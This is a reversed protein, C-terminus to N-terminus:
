GVRLWVPNTFCFHTRGDPATTFCEARLYGNREVTIVAASEAGTLGRFSGTPIEREAAAGVEGHLLRITEFGGFETSSRAELRVSVRSGVVESGISTEPDADGSVRLNLVPGDTLISKGSRLGHLIAAEDSGASFVGTRMLGFLQDHHEWMRVFPIRIQRFRNFNGHADDGAISVLRRGELLLRIWWTYGEDFAADRRGNAFQFGHLGPARLDDVEWIGRGMLLRQLLSVRERAHAAVAAAQPELGCLVETISHESRTRLWREASDGSGPVFGRIGYLLVHVNQGRANRCTVEEGRVIAPGDGRANLRDVEVQFQKWKPLDPHNRLFDDAHDDLDYSHDTICFYSLGAAQALVRAADLPVGFEVQDSTYSSHAHPEGLHLNPLVPLPEEAVLVTLPAHSTTRHNDNRYITRRGAAELEFEVDCDITGRFGEVSIPVVRWQLPGECSWPEALLELTRRMGGRLSLTATVRLLRSPYRDADKVLILVPLSAGPEIRFPADIVVEPEPKRLFSPLARFRYHTEAYLVVPPFIM